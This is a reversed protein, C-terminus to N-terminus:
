ENVGAPLRAVPDAALVVHQAHQGVAAQPPDVQRLVPGHGVAPDHQLAQEVGGALVSGVGRHGLALEEGGEVM